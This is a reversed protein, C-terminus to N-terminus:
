PALTDTSSKSNTVEALVQRWATIAADESLHEHWYRSGAEAAETMEAPHALFDLAADLLVVPDGSPTIRGALSEAMIGAVIGDPDVAALVPREAAFYSTLKSPAAMEKVGPLENVLLIDAAALADPFDRDSVPDVFRLTPVGDALSELEAREAGDGLLIFTIDDGRQHAIRAAEAVTSLGQKRGMNGSHLVIRADAEWGLRARADDRSAASPMVHGWNRIVYTRDPDAGLDRIMRERMAPHIAVVADADKLLWREVTKAIRVAMRSGEGTEMMGHTYLDQVWVAHPIRRPFRLRVACLASAFLAPSVLIAADTRGWPSNMQHLGFHLESLLRKLGRPPNPIWHAVRRLDVGQDESRAYLGPYEAYRSWQPYHPFGTVATVGSNEVLRRALATTYPANGTPEPAYNLALLTVDLGSNM